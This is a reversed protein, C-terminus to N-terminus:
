VVFNEVYLHTSCVMNVAHVHASRQVAIKQVVAVSSMWYKQCHQQSILRYPCFDEMM